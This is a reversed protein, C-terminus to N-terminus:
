TDIGTEELYVLGIDGEQESLIVEGWRGVGDKSHTEHGWSLFENEITHIIENKPLLTWM